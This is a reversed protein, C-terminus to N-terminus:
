AKTIQLFIINQNEETFIRLDRLQAQPILASVAVMEHRTRYLLRWDMYSEMYGLDPIGPLFNAVLLRGGPRLMQFMVWTLQQAMAEHLYDLLGTSYVMDFQGLDSRQALLQRITSWVTQVGFRGYCRQVERLSARDCDMAVFRGLKRRKVAACLEAERLHGAAVALVDPRPRCEALQDLFDAVFGRRARVGECAASRTTYEFIMAGLDTTGAPPPWGEERGYIFDLLAADGPYGRPRSYARHTFPDQHLLQCLPHRLYAKTLEAWEPLGCSMRRAKLGPLLANMGDAIQGCRIRDYVDDLLTEEPALAVHLAGNAPGATDVKM